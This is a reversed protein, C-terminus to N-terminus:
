YTFKATYNKENAVNDIVKLTFTHKGKTLSKDINFKLLNRKYDYDMLIWKGDIEARYSKIGSNKDKVTLKISTQTNFVKGPFINVGKIEPNITDAIICFDGFERVKTRLFGEKWKGGLHWFNGKLDTTAIYTKSKLTDPVDARISLVYKKHVPTNNFHVHHVEGFVGDVSDTTNYHFRLPEYLSFTEM